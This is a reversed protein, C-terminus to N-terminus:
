VVTAERHLSPEGAKNAGGDTKDGTGETVAEMEEDDVAWRKM